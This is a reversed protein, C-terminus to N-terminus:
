RSSPMELLFLCSEAQLRIRLTAVSVRNKGCFMSLAWGWAELGMLATVGVRWGPPSRGAYFVPFLVYHQLTDM